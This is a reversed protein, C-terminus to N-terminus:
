ISGNGFRLRLLGGGRRTPILGEKAEVHVVPGGNWEDWVDYYELSETQLDYPSSQANRLLTGRPYLFVIGDYFLLSSIRLIYKKLRTTYLCSM